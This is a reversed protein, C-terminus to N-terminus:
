ASLGISRKVSQEVHAVVHQIDSCYVSQNNFGTASSYRHPLYGGTCIEKIGCGGCATPLTAQWDKRMTYIPHNLVADIDHRLINLGTRQVGSGTSKLTDVGEFDGDTSITVLQVPSTTMQEYLGPHGVLRAVINDLFRIRLHSHRGGLWADWIRALWRGYPALEGSVGDVPPRDWNHHPLLLDINPVGLAALADLTEIPDSRTDVVALVGVLHTPAFKQLTKVGAIVREYTSMGRHDLRHLDNASKNGDLSVGVFIGHEQIVSAFEESLLVGNTQVGLSLEVGSSEVITRVTGALRSLRSPGLLLPEGGHLSISVAELGHRRAHHAIKRAAEEYVLPLMFKVASRWSEDGHRYEYCYDCNLNCRAAIKLIFERVPTVSQGLPPAKSRSM